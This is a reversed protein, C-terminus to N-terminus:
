SPPATPAGSKRPLPAPLCCGESSRYTATVRILWDLHTWPRWRAVAIREDVLLTVTAAMQQLPHHWRELVWRRPVVGGQAYQALLDLM